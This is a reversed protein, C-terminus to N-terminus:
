SERERDGPDASQRWGHPLIATSEDVGYADYGFSRQFPSGEGITADILDSRESHSRPFVDAENSALLEGPADPFEGLVAQSGIIVVDDVDAITGTARIIHELNARTM